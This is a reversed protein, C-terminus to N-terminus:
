RQCGERKDAGAEGVDGVELERADAGDEGGEEEEVRGEVRRGAVPLAHVLEARGDEEHRVEVREGGVRAVLVQRRADERALVDLVVRPREELGHHLTRLRPVDPPLLLHRRRRRGQMVLLLLVTPAARERTM